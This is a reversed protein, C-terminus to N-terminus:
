AFGNAVSPMEVVNPMTPTLMAPFDPKNALRPLFASPLRGGQRAPRILM